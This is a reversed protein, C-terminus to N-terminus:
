RFFQEVGRDASPRTLATALADPAFARTSSDPRRAQPGSPQEEDENVNAINLVIARAPSPRTPPFPRPSPQTFRRSGCPVCCSVDPPTLKALRSLRATDNVISVEFGQSDARIRTRLSRTPVTKSSSCRPM